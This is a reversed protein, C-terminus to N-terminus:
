WVCGGAQPEEQGMHTVVVGMVKHAGIVMHGM